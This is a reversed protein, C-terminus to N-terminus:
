YIVGHRSGEQNDRQSNKRLSGMCTRQAHYEFAGEGLM